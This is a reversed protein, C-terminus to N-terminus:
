DTRREIDEIEKNVEAEAKDLDNKFTRYTEEEAATLERSKRINELTDIQTRLHNRLVGFARHLTDEAERSEKKVGGRFRQFRRFGYWIVFILILLLAILPVMVSLFNIVWTGLRVIYPPQILVVMKDTPRSKAGKSDLVEVWAKYLGDKLREDSIFTFVGNGDSKQSYAKVVGAENEVSVLVVSNPYTQGKVSLLNGSALEQSYYTIEPPNLGVLEFELSNVASNGARDFAKAVLIHNGPELRKTTYIHDSGPRWTEYGDTDLQIEYHDIGSTRDFANMVIKAVPATKATPEALTIDFRDPKQTDIQFRYDAIRGWGKDNEFQVHFYWVGDRLPSGKYQYETIPSQFYSSPLATPSDNFSLKVATVDTPVNWTFKPIANQYWGSPDPHTPSYIGPAAPAGSPPAYGEPIPTTTKPVITYVASNMQKLAASGKGDAARVDGSFFNVESQGVALGQFTVTVIVGDGNFGKISGGAFDITGKSNSFIPEPVWLNFVSDTKSLGIVKLESPNFLVTGQAANVPEDEATSVKVDMEFNSGVTQIGSPPSLYLTAALSLSPLFLVLGGAFFALLLLKLNKSPNGM